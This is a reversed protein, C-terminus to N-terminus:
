KKTWQREPPLTGGGLQRRETCMGGKPGSNDSLAHEEAADADAPVSVTGSARM